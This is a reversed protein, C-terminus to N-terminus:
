VRMRPTVPCRDAIEDLTSLARELGNFWRFATDSREANIAQYIAELDREACPMISVLYAM